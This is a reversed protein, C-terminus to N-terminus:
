PPERPPPTVLDATGSVTGDQIIMGPGGGGGGGGSQSTGNSGTEGNANDNSGDGGDGGSNGGSTGGAAQSGEPSADDGPDGAATDDSGEGGAGGNAALIANNGLQIMAGAMWIVGGSGGGGGGGRPDAGGAGGAGGAHISGNVTRESLAVVGVAGGGRGGLANGAAGTGGNGGRCGGRLRPAGNQLDGAAGPGGAMAGEGAGGPGGDGGLGGGGGGGGGDDPVDANGGNGAALGGSLCEQPDAGAGTGNAGGRSSADIEGDVTLDSWAVLLLPLDGIVRLEAAAGIEINAASLYRVRTTGGQLEGSNHNIPAGGNFRLEGDTTNYTYVGNNNLALTGTRENAVIDCSDLEEVLTVGRCPDPADPPSADIQGVIGDGGDDDDNGSDEETNDGGDQVGAPGAGQFSCAAGSLVLAAAATFAAWGEVLRPTV